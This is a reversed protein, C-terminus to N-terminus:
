SIKHPMPLSNSNACPKRLIREPPFTPLPSAPQKADTSNWSRPLPRHGSIPATMDSWKWMSMASSDTETYRFRSNKKTPLKPTSNRPRTNPLAIRSSASYKPEARIPLSPKPTKWIWSSSPCPSANLLSRFRAEGQRLEQETTKQETIDTMIGVIGGPQGDMDRFLAKRVLTTREDDGFKTAVEYEQPTGNELPRQNKNNILPTVNEPLLTDIKKGLFHDKPMAILEAFAQNSGLYNNDLDTYFIQSPIADIVTQIFSLQNRLAEEAKQRKDIEQELRERQIKLFTSREFGKTIAQDLEILATDSKIVFDWAGKRISRIADELEEKDSIVILPIETSQDTLESLITHGNPKSIPLDILVADPKKDMFLELGSLNSDAELIAYGKVRLHQAVLTKFTGNNAIILICPTNM